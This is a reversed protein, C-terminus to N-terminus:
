VLLAGSLYATAEEALEALVRQVTAVAAEDLRIRETRARYHVYDAMLLGAASLVGANRPVLLTDIDLDEAIRAAHLPGAGGFPVLVFDRPDLGQETSVQQIARVIFSLGGSVKLYTCSRIQSTM